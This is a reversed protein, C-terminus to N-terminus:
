FHRHGPVAPFPAGDVLVRDITESEEKQGIQGVTVFGEPLPQGADFTAVLAHDQGGTLVWIMPDTGYASAVAALPDAVDFSDTQVYAVVGSAKAIHGLDSLLGDSVDAM